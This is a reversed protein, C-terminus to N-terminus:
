QGLSARAQTWFSTDIYRSAPPAPAPLDGDEVMLELVREIGRPDIEAERPMVQLQEIYLEYTLRAYREETRTEDGLIQIAATKNAPDNLWRASRILGRLYRRMRDANQRAWERNITIASFTYPTLYDTSMALRPFGEDALQFDQPQGLLGADITGAKLAAYRERTGGAIVLDYDGENLGNAALMKRLILTAAGRAEAAGVPKGRLDAFSRIRPTTMLSYTATDMEVAAITLPAGQEIARVVGDPLASGAQISGSAVGSILQAASQSVVREFELGEEAFFGRHMGVYHPWYLAFVSVQGYTFPERAPTGSAPTAAPPVGPATVAPSAPPPAGSTPATAPASCALALGTALVLGVAAAAVTPHMRM